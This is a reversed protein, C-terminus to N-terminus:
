GHDPRREAIAARPNISCEKHAYGAPEEWVPAEGLPIRRYASVTTSKRLPSPVAVQEWGAGHPRRERARQRTAVDRRATTAVILAELGASGELDILEDDM